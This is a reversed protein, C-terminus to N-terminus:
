LKRLLVILLEYFVKVSKIDVKEDPSHPNLINPGISIVQSKPLYSKLFGCELGGHTASIKPKCGIKEEYINTYIKILENNPDPKWANTQNTLILKTNNGTYIQENFDLIQAQLNLGFALNYVSIIKNVTSILELDDSSRVMSNIEIRNNETKLVGINNSTQPLGQIEQSMQWVGSQISNLIHLLKYTDELSFARSSKKTKELRIDLGPEKNQHYDRYIKALKRFEQTFEQVKETPLNIIGQSERPTANRKNGGKISILKFEFKQSLNSLLSALSSIANLRNETINMGSHGGQLGNLSIKLDINNTQVSEREFDVQFIIDTTGACGICVEGIDESDLNVVYDASILSKDLNRVGNMGEEEDVTFLAEIMPHSIQRDELISLIIALGVGNDAGLTTEKATLYHGDLQLEIPDFNFDHKSNSNKEHVMDQHAQLLLIKASDSNQSEKYIVVNGQSDQAAKLNNKKAFDLLWKGVKNEKKSGRPINSLEAFYHWIKEPQLDKVTELNKKPM